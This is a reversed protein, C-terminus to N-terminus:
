GKTKRREMNIRAICYRKKLQAEERMREILEKQEVDEVEWDKVDLFSEIEGFLKAAKRFVQMSGRPRGGSSLAEARELISEAMDNPVLSEWMSPKKPQEIVELLTEGM